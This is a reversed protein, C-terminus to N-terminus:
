GLKTCGREICRDYGATVGSHQLLLSKAQAIDDVLLWNIAPLQFRFLPYRRSGLYRYVGHSASQREAGAPVSLVACNYIGAEPTVDAVIGVQKLAQAAETNEASIPM